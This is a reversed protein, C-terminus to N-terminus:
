LRIDVLAKQRLETTYQQLREQVRPRRLIEEIRRATAEDPKAEADATDVKAEEIDLVAVQASSPGLSLLPSVEGKRMNAVVQAMGPAMDAVDMFGLDGGEEPNPGVSVKRAAEAFSVKGSAIDAAWKEANVDGPYVLMAVRIRGTVLGAMHKRYYNNIEEETVVVKRIVNENMLKQTIVQAEARDRLMKETWGDKEMQKFFQERPMQTEQMMAELAANIQEDSIKIEAKAAQQRLIKENIMRDLVAKRVMDAMEPSKQPDLQQGICEPKVARELERSTIMDGNVVAVVRSVPAAFVPQAAFISAACALSIALIRM